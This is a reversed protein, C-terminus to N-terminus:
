GEVLRRLSLADELAFGGLDNNFYAYVELGDSEWTRIRDAWWRLRKEGYRGGYAVAPGHFRLYVSSSTVWRPCALDVVDNICFTLEHRELVSRVEDRFWDPDRFEFAHTLDHPLRDAHEALREPNAHWGPPLQWLIPGLTAGLGRARTLLKALGDEALKLKKMHTLYRNAKVGFIFGPPAQEAWRVFTTAAPLHYFTSNIEVTDFHRAYYGFWASQPLDEPYFIGRWHPYVWGSTGIHVGM